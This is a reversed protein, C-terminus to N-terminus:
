DSKHDNKPSIKNFWDFNFEQGKQVYSGIFAGLTLKALDLFNENARAESGYIEFAVHMFAFILTLSVTTLPLGTLGIKTFFGSPGVLSRLLIYQKISDDNKIRDGILELDEEPVTSRGDHRAMTILKIANAFVVFSFVALLLMEFNAVFWLELRFSDDRAPEYSEEVMFALGIGMFSALLMIIGIYYNLTSAGVANKGFGIRRKDEAM